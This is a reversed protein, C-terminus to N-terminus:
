SKYHTKNKKIKFDQYGIQKFAYYIIIADSKKGFFLVNFQSGNTTEMVEWGKEGFSNTYEFTIYNIIEKDM